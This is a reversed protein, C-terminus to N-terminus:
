NQWCVRRMMSSRGLADEFQEISGGEQLFFPKKELLNLVGETTRLEPNSLETPNAPNRELLIFVDLGKDPSKLPTKFYRTTAINPPCPKGSKDLFTEAANLQDEICRDFTEQDVGSIRMLDKLGSLLLPYGKKIYGVKRLGRRENM